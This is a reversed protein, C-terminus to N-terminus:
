RKFIWGVTILNINIIEASVLLARKEIAENRVPAIDLLDAEGGLVRNFIVALNIGLQKISAM